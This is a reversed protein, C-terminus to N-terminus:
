IDNKFHWVPMESAMKLQELPWKRGNQLCRKSGNFVGMKGAKDLVVM